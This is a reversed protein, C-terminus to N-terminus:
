GNSAPLINNSRAPIDPGHELNKGDPVARGMGSRGSRSVPQEAMSHNMLGNLTKEARRYRPQNRRQQGRARHENYAPLAVEHSALRM